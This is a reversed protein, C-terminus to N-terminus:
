EAAVASDIEVRNRGLTKARYLAKDALDILYAYDPHGRHGAVGISVTATIADGDPLQLKHEMFQRRVREAIDVGAGEPTEVLAVLFEEGGYRFVFDCPRVNDMIVEAIQRLVTDGALHGWKDNIQKFHDVDIMLLTLSSGSSNALAVERSLISPLFRRNLAKTMPDRANEMGAVSQFLDNLLYKIEEISAQLRRLVDQLRDGGEARAEDIKPLLVRDVQQVADEIGELSSAGQFMMGARHRLWLGFASQSIPEPPASGANGFLGFLVSQGWEMLAARQSERELSVDQGLSVLRYAEDVQARRTTGVVYAQSMQRIAYDVLESMLMLAVIVTNRDADKELLRASVESKLLSSGAMVLHIPIKIRAHIEGIQKQREDFAEFGADPDACLLEILWGRLSKGLREHVVSHSLFTSAEDDALFANYFLGVFDDAGEEVVASLLRRAEARTALDTKAWFSLGIQQSTNTM